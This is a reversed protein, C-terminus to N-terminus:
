ADSAGGDRAAARWAVSLRYLAEGILARLASKSFSVTVGQRMCSAGAPNLARFAAMEEDSAIRSLILTKAEVPSTRVICDALARAGINTRDVPENPDLGAAYDIPPVDVFDVPGKKGFDSKYLRGYAAGRFGADSLTLTGISLCEVRAISPWKRESERSDPPTKLYTEVPKRHRSIVCGAFRDVLTRIGDESFPDGPTPGPQSELRSGSQASAPAAPIAVCGLVALFLIRRRM